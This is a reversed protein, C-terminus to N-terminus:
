QERIVSPIHNQPLLPIIVTINKINTFVKKSFYMNQIPYIQRIYVLTKITAVKRYIKNEYKLTSGSM